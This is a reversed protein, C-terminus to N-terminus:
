PNSPTNSELAGIRQLATQLQNELVTVRNKLDDVDNRLTSVNSNTSNISDKITDFNYNEFTINPVVLRNDIITNNPRSVITNAIVNELISDNYNNKTNEAGLLSVNEDDNTILEIDGTVWDGTDLYYICDNLMTNIDINNPSYVVFKNKFINGYVSNIDNTNIDLNLDTNDVTAKLIPNIITIYERSKNGYDPDTYDVNPDYIPNPVNITDYKNIEVNLSLKKITDVNPNLTNNYNPKFCYNFELTFNLKEFDNDYVGKLYCIPILRPKAVSPEEQNEKLEVNYNQVSYLAGGSLQNTINNTIEDKIDELTLNGLRNANSVTYNTTIDDVIDAYSMNALTAANINSSNSLEALVNSVIENQNTSIRSDVEAVKDNIYEVVNSSTGINGILNNTATNVSDPIINVTLDNIIDNYSYGNLTSANFTYNLQLWQAFQDPTYKTNDIIINNTADSTNVGILGIVQEGSLGGGSSSPVRVLIDEVIETYSMNNLMASNSATGSLIQEKLEELNYGYVLLSNAALGNKDLKNALLTNVETKNYVNLQAATVNHPNNKNAIHEDITPKFRYNVIDIVSAPTVYYNNSANSGSNVPLIPLNVVNSLGIQAKTVHHPNNYDTVHMEFGTASQSLQTSYIRELVEVIDEAGTFDDVPHYHDSPPFQYPLNAVQEWTTHIPNHEWDTIIDVIKNETLNWDGGITRYDIYIDGAFKRNVFSIAGYVPKGTRLDAQIFRFGLNYDVGEVLYTKTGLRDKTYLKFDNTFFPAFTPIIYHFDNRNRPTITHREGKIYNEEVRGLPDFVYRIPDAM